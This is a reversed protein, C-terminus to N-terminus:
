PTVTFGCTVDGSVHIKLPNKPEYPEAAEGDVHAGGASLSVTGPVEANYFRSTPRGKPWAAVSLSDKGLSVILLVPTTGVTSMGIVSLRDGAAIPVCEVSVPDLGPGFSGEPSDGGFVLTSTGATQNGCDVTGKLSTIAGLTGAKVDPTSVATVPGDVTVGTHPDFGTVGSGEFDRGFFTTGSGSSTHVAVHGPTMTIRLAVAPDPTQGFIDITLGDLSPTACRISMKSVAGVLGQDGGLTFVATAPGLSASPSPSVPASSPSTSPVTSSSAAPPATATAGPTPSGGTSGGCATVLLTFIWASALWRHRSPPLTVFRSM